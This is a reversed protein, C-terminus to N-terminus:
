NSFRTSDINSLKKNLKQTEKQECPDWTAYVQKSQM